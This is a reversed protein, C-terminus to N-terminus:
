LYVMHMHLTACEVKAGKARNEEMPRMMGGHRVNLELTRRTESAHVRGNCLYVVNARLAEALDVCDKRIGLQLGETALNNM